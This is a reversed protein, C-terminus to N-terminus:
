CAGFGHSLGNFRVSDTTSHCGAKLKQLDPNESSNQFSLLMPENQTKLDLLYKCLPTSQITVRVKDRVEEAREPILM